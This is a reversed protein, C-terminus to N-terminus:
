TARGAETRRQQEVAARTCAVRVEIRSHRGWRPSKPSLRSLDVPSDALERLSDDLADSWVASALRGIPRMMRARPRRLHEVVVAGLRARDAETLPANALAYAADALLYGSQFCQPDAEMLIIARDM